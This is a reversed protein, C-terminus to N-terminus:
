PSYFTSFRNIHVSGHGDYFNCFEDSLGVWVRTFNIGVTDSEIKNITRSMASMLSTIFIKLWYVIWEDLWLQWSYCEPEHKKPCIITFQDYFEGSGLLNFKRDTGRPRLQKDSAIHKTLAQTIIETQAKACRTQVLIM